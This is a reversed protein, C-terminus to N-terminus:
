QEPLEEPITRRKRRVLKDTVPSDSLSERDSSMIRNYLWSQLDAVADRWNAPSEKGVQEIALELCRLRLTEEDMM